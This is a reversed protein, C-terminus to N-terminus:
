ADWGALDIQAEGTTTSECRCHAAIMRHTSSDRMARGSEDLIVFVPTRQHYAALRGDSLLYSRTTVPDRSPDFAIHRSKVIERNTLEIERESRRLCIGPGRCIGEATRRDMPSCRHRSVLIRAHQRLMSSAAVSDTEFRVSEPIVWAIILACRSRGPLASIGAARTIAVGIAFTALTCITFAITSAPTMDACYVIRLISHDMVLAASRLLRSAVGDGTNVIALRENPRTVQREYPGAIRPM